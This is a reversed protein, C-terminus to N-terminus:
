RLSNKLFSISKEKWEKRILNVSHWDIISSLDDDTINNIIRSELGFLGLLSNFRAAGRDENVLVFFPKNFIISFVMGHFSDTVVIDAESISRLWQTIPPYVCEDPYKRINFYTTSYYPMCEYRKKGTKEIIKNIISEKEATKDLIYTFLEGENRKDASEEYLKVYEEKELLLTPDLVFEASIGLYRRCLDVASQERVSVADFKQSLNRCRETLENDYEWEDVSFSAAYAIKKVKLDQAFNLYCEEVYPFGRRWIQDSGVILAECKEEISSRLFSSPSNNPCSVNIHEKIFPEVNKSIFADQKPTISRTDIRLLIHAVKSLLAKTKFFPSTKKNYACRLTVTEHGFSKLVTQLAYNQIVGGYGYHLYHTLIGVKM